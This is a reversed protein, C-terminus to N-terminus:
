RPGHTAKAVAGYQEKLAAPNARAQAVIQRLAMRAAPGLERAGDATTTLLAPNAFRLLEPPINPDGGNAIAAFQSRFAAPNARAQAVIGILAMRAAPTLDQAGSPTTTLMSPNVFVALEPPINLGGSALAASQAALAAPNARMESVIRQLAMEVPPDLHQGGTSAATMAGPAALISPPPPTIPAAAQGPERRQAANTEPSGNVRTVVPSAAHEIEGDGQHTDGRVTEGHGLLFATVLTLLESSQGLASARPPSSATRVRDALPARDPTPALTARDSAPALPARDPTPALTARDPAPALPARDPTPALPARDSERSPHSKVYWVGGILFVGLLLLRLM